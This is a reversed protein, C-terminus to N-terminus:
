PCARRQGGAAFQFAGREQRGQELAGAHRRGAERGSEAGASRDGVRHRHGGADASQAGGKTAEPDHDARAENGMVVAALGDQEPAAPRVQRRQAEGLRQACLPADQDLVHIAEVVAIGRQGAGRGHAVFGGAPVIRQGCVAGDDLVLRDAERLPVAEPELETREIGRGPRADAVMGCPGSPRCRMLCWQAHAYEAMARDTAADGPQQCGVRAPEREGANRNAIRGTVLRRCWQHAVRKAEGAAVDVNDDLHHAAHVDRALGDGGGQAAANRHHGRVLVQEGGVASFERRQRVPVAPAQEGACRDASRHRHEFRDAPGATRRQHLKRAHEVAGGVEDQLGALRARRKRHRDGFGSAKAVGLGVGGAVQIPAVGGRFEARRGLLRASRRQGLAIDQPLGDDARREPGSHALDGGHDPITVRPPRLHAQGGKRGVREQTAGPRRLIDHDDPAVVPRLLDQV